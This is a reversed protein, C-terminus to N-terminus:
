PPTLGGAEAMTEPEPPSGSEPLKMRGDEAKVKPGFPSIGVPKTTSEPRPGSGLPGEEPSSM